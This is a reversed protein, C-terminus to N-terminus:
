LEIQVIKRSLFISIISIIACVAMILYGRVSTYLPALYDPSLVMLLILIVFPMVNMIRQEIRKQALLVRLDERIEMRDQLMRITNEMLVAINGESRKCIEVARAFSSIEEIGSREGLDRLSDEVPIGLKSQGVVHKWEQYLLPTIRADMDELAASFAGELSRGARLGVTLDYLADKFEVSLQQRRKEMNRRRLMRPGAAAGLVAGALILPWKRFFMTTIVGLLVAGLIVGLLWQGPNLHFTRYDTKGHEM